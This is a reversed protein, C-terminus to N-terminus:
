RKLGSSTRKKRLPESSRMGQRVSRRCQIGSGCGNPPMAAQVCGMLDGGRKGILSTEDEGSFAQDMKNAMIVRRNPDVMIVASHLNDIINKLNM